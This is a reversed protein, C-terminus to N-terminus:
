DAAIRSRPYGMNWVPECCAVEIGETEHGKVNRTIWQYFGFRICTAQMTMNAVSSKVLHHMDKFSAVGRKKWIGMAVLEIVADGLFTFRGRQSEELLRLNHEALTSYPMRTQSRAKSMAVERARTLEGSTWNPHMIFFYVALAYKRIIEGFLREVSVETAFNNTATGSQSM